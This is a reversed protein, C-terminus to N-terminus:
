KPLEGVEGELGDVPGDADFRSVRRLLGPLNVGEEFLRRRLPPFDGLPQPVSPGSRGVVRLNADKSYRTDYGGPNADRPSENTQTYEPRRYRKRGYFLNEEHRRMAADLDSMYDGVKEWNIHDDAKWDRAHDNFWHFASNTKAKQEDRLDAASPPVWKGDRWVFKM